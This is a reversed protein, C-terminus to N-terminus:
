TSMSSMFKERKMQSRGPQMESVVLDHTEKNIHPRCKYTVRIVILLGCVIRVNCGDRTELVLQKLKDASNIRKHPELM